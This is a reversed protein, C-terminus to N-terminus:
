DVPLSFSITTGVGLISDCEIKGGHKEVVYKSINLGLGSGAIGQSRAKDGRYFKDFIFPLDAASIGIGNDEVSVLLMDELMRFTTNIKGHAKSYKTSNDVINRMVQTIRRSDLNLLVNPANEYIFKFGKQEVDLALDLLLGDFFAKAYVEEKQISFQNLHAKSHELIDDILKNLSTAKNLIIRAYNKVDDEEVVVNYLIGEVYGTISALPTKLDHSISALLLSEKKKFEQERLSSDQLESRMLEFDHCLTGIEGDYDYLLPSNLNGDMINKTTEHLERIPYFIDQKLVKTLLYISILMVIIGFLIPTILLISYFVPKKYVKADVQILLTGVQNRGHMVPIKYLYRFPNITSLTHLDMQQGVKYDMDQTYIVIGDLGIVTFPLKSIHALLDTNANQVTEVEYVLSNFDVRIKREDLGNNDQWKLVFFTSYFALLLMCGLSIIICFALKKRVVDGM